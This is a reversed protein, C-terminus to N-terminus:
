PQIDIDILGTSSERTMSGNTWRDAPYFYQEYRWLM